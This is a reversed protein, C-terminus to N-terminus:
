LMFVDQDPFEVEYVFSSPPNECKIIKIVRIYSEKVYM